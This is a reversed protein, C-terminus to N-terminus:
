RFILFVRKAGGIGIFTSEPRGLSSGPSRQDKPHPPELDIQLGGLPVGFDDFNALIALFTTDFNSSKEPHRASARGSPNPVGFHGGFYWFQHFRLCNGGELFVHIELRSICAFRVGFASTKVFAHFLGLGLFTSKENTKVTYDAYDSRAFCAFISVFTGASPRLFVVLFVVSKSVLFTLFSHNKFVFWFVLM